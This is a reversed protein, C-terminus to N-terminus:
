RHPKRRPRRGLVPGKARSITRRDHIGRQQGAAVGVHSLHVLGRRRTHPVQGAHLHQRFQSADRRRNGPPNLRGAGAGHGLLPQRQAWVGPRQLGRLCQPGLSREDSEADIDLHVHLRSPGRHLRAGDPRRIELGIRREHRALEDRRICRQAVARRVGHADADPRRHITKNPPSIHWYLGDFTFFLGQKAEAWNDYPRVDAPEFLAAGQLEHDQGRATVSASFVLLLAALGLSIRNSLMVLVGTVSQLIVWFDSGRLRRASDTVITDSTAAADTSYSLYVKRLIRTIVACCFPILATGALVPKVKTGRAHHQECRPQRDPM